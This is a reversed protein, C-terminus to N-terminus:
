HLDGLSGSMAPLVSNCDWVAIEVAHSDILFAICLLAECTVSHLPLPM